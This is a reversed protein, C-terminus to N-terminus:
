AKIIQYQRSRGRRLRISVDELRQRLKPDSQMQEELRTVALSVTSPDRKLYKAAETLRLGGVERAVYAAQARLRSAARGRGQGLMMGIGHGSGRAIAKAVDAMTIKVPRTEPEQKLVKEVGEVFEDEGLYRQEKVEYYDERHGQAMGDRIFREYAGIAARRESGWLRLGKEVAVAGDSKGQLYKGHSSWKYRQPDEVMKARVPNLHLYRILEMLYSDRDCLIAKYRGQFLHGIKRYRQNYHRTYRYLLSQM